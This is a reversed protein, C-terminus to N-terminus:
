DWAKAFDQTSSITGSKLVIDIINKLSTKLPLSNHQHVEFEKELWELTPKSYLASLKIPVGVKDGHEDLLSYILRRKRHMETDEAGRDAIVNFQKLLANFEALSTFNYNSTVANVTNSIARKTPVKGYLAKKLEIVKIGPAPKFKKGQAKVLMFEQEIEKRAKESHIRGINHLSIPEGNAQISTTVVHIHHHAADHHRYVLFPQDGFGIKDMYSVAIQQLKQDKLNEAADFNLTIHLTNTKVKPKLMLLNEFRQLKQNFNMQEIDGGFASALILEAQGEMVKNENYHLVGRIKKGIIIKAVM